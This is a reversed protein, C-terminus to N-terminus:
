LLILIFYPLSADRCEATSDTIAGDMEWDCAPLKVMKGIHITINGM